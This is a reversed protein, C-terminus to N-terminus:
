ESCQIKAAAEEWKGAMKSFNTYLEEATLPETAKRSTETIGGESLEFFPGDDEGCTDFRQEPLGVSSPIFYEGDMLGAFISRKQIATLTGAEIVENFIKYNSADRYLYSILTNM